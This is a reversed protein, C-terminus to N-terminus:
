IALAVDIRSGALTSFADCWASGSPDGAERLSRATGPRVKWARDSAAHIAFDDAGVSFCVVANIPHTPRFYRHMTDLREYDSPHEALFQGFIRYADDFRACDFAIPRRDADDPSAVVGRPRDTILDVLRSLSSHAALDGPGFPYRADPAAGTQTWPIDILLLVPSGAALARRSSKVMSLGSEIFRLEFDQSAALSSLAHAHDSGQSGIIAYVPGRASAGLAKYILGYDAYHFSLFLRGAADEIELSFGEIRDALRKGTRGAGKTAWMQALRPCDEASVGLQLLNSAAFAQRSRRSYTM